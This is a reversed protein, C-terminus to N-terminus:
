NNNNIDCHINILKEYLDFHIEWLKDTYQEIRQELKHITQTVDRWLKNLFIIIVISFLLISFLSITVSFEIDRCVVMNIGKYISFNMIAIVLLVGVLYISQLKRRQILDLRVSKLIAEIQNNFYDLSTDQSQLKTNTILTDQINNIQKMVDNHYHQSKQMQIRNENSLFATNIMENHINVCYILKDKYGNDTYNNGTENLFYEQFDDWLKNEEEESLENISYFKKNQFAQTYVYNEILRLEDETNYKFFMRIIKSDRKLINKIKKKAKIKDIINLGIQESIFNLVGGVSSIFVGEM